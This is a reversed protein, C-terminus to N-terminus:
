RAWARPLSNSISKAPRYSTLVVATRDRGRSGMEFRPFVPELVDTPGMM